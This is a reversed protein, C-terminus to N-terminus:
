SKCNRSKGIATKVLGAFPNTLCKAKNVLSIIESASDVYHTPEHQGHIPAGEKKGPAFMTKTNISPAIGAIVKITIYEIQLM